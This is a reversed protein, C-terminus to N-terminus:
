KEWNNKYIIRSFFVFKTYTARRFLYVVSREEREFAIKKESGPSHDLELGVSVIENRSSAICRDVGGFIPIQSSFFRVFILQM